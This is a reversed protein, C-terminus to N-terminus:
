GECVIWPVMCEMLSVGGHKFANSEGPVKHAWGFRGRAAAINRRMWAKGTGALARTTKTTVRSNGFAQAMLKAEREGLPWVCEEGEWVYGHDSTIVLPCVLTPDALVADLIAEVPQIVHRTYDTDRLAFYDEPYVYWIFRRQADPAFDPQWSERTVYRFVFPVSARHVIDAPESAAYHRRAFNGTDTPPLSLAFDLRPRLGHASVRERVLPVERLSLSDILLLTYRDRAHLSIVHDQRAHPSELLTYVDRAEAQAKGTPLADYYYLEQELASAKPEGERLYAELDGLQRARAFEVDNWIDITLASYLANIPDADDALRQVLLVDM